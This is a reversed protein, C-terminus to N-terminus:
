VTGWMLLYVVIYLGTFTLDKAPYLYTVLGTRVQTETGSLRM